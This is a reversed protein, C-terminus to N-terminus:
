ASGGLPGARPDTPVGAGAGPARRTHIAVVAPMAAEAVGTITASYADLLAADGDPSHGAGHAGAPGAGNGASPDPSGAAARDYTASRLALTMFGCITATLVSQLHRAVIRPPM